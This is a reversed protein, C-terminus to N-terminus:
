PAIAVPHFPTETQSERHKQLLLRHTWFPEFRYRDSDPRIPDVTVFGSLNLLRQVPVSVTAGRHQVEISEGPAVEFYGLRDVQEPGSYKAAVAALLRVYLELHEPKMRSPRNNSKTDRELWRAFYEEMLSREDIPQHQRDRQSLIARLISNGALNPFVALATRDRGLRRELRSRCEPHMEANPEFEVDSFEGTAAFGAEHWRKYDAWTMPESENDKGGRRLGYKWSEYNWNSVLLDGTTRFDPPSLLFSQVNIMGQRDRVSKWYERFAVPRGFVVVHIFKRDGQFVLRELERLIFEYNDPHVEDLSDVVFFSEDRSHLLHTFEKRGATTLCSLHSIIAGQHEVDPKAETCGQDTWGDFLEHADVKWVSEKPVTQDYVGRKVFTKGVGASGAVITLAQFREPRGHHYAAIGDDLRWRLAPNADWYYDALNEFRAVGPVLPLPLVRQEISKLFPIPDSSGSDSSSASLDDGTASTAGSCIVVLLVWFLRVIGTLSLSHDM